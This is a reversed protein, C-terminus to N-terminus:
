TPEDIAHEFARIREVSGLDHWLGAYRMGRLIHGARMARRYLDFIDSYETPYGEHFLAPSVAHVGCFGFRPADDPYLFGDDKWVDKGLFTLDADFRLARATARENCALVAVAGSRRQEALLATLDFDSVIDANHVLFSEDGDLWDRAHLIGGGTGLIVDEPLLVIDVGYDVRTFHEKMAGAFHHANVVIRGCGARRLAEISWAIMPRGAVPILAKPTEDTLPALRTGFGAALIM